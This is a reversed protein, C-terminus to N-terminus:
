RIISEFFRIVFASILSRPHEPQDAGTYNAVGRRCTKEGRPGNTLNVKESDVYEVPQLVATVTDKYVSIREKSLNIFRLPIKKGSKPDILVKAVLLGTNEVFQMSPEVLGTKILDLNDIPKGAMIIESEPPVNIHDILDVRCCAPQIGNSM